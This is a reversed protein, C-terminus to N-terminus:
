AIVSSGYDTGTCPASSGPVEEAIVLANAQMKNQDWPMCFGLWCNQEPEEEGQSKSEYLDSLSKYKPILAQWSSIKYDAGDQLMKIVETIMAKAKSEDEGLQSFKIMWSHLDRRRKEVDWTFQKKLNWLSIWDEKGKEKEGRVLIEFVGPLSALVKRLDLLQHKISFNLDETYLSANQLVSYSSLSKIGAVPSLLYGVVTESETADAKFYEGISHAFSDFDSISLLGKDSSQGFIIIDSSFEYHSSKINKSFSSDTKAGVPINNLKERMDSSIDKGKSKSSSSLTMIGSLSKGRHVSTVIHTIKYSDDKIVHEKTINDFNLTKTSTIAYSTFTKSLDTLESDHKFGVKSKTELETVKALDATIELSGALSMAASQSNKVIQTSAIQQKNKYIVVNNSNTIYASSLFQTPTRDEALINIAYGVDVVYDALKRVSIKQDM